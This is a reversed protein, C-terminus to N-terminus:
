EYLQLLNPTHFFYILLPAFWNHVAGNRNLLVPILPTKTLFSPALLLKPGDGM